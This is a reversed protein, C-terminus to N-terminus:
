WHCRKFIQKEIAAALYHKNEIMSHDLHDYQRCREILTGETVALFDPYPDMKKLVSTVYESWALRGLKHHKLTPM